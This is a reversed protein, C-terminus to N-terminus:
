DAFKPDRKELFARSGEALDGASITLVQSRDELAVHQELTTVAQSANLM